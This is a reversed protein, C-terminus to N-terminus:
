MEVEQHVTPREV